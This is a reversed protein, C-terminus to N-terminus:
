KKIDKFFFSKRRKESNPIIYIKRLSGKLLIRNPERFVVYPKYERSSVHRKSKKKDSGARNEEHVTHM